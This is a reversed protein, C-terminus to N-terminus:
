AGGAIALYATRSRFGFPLFSNLGLMGEPDLMV